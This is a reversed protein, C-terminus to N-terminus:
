SGQRGARRAGARWPPSTPFPTNGFARCLPDTDSPAPPRFRWPRCGGPLNWVLRCDRCAPHGVPARSSKGWRAMSAAAQGLSRRREGRRAFLGGDDFPAPILAGDTRGHAPTRRAVADNEAAAQPNLLGAPRDTWRWASRGDVASSAEAAARVWAVTRTTRYDLRPGGETAANVTHLPM